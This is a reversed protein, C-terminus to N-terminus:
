FDIALKYFENKVVPWCKKLFMGNFGDPGPARDAPMEKIVDDMEKQQFPLTLEDLGDVKQILRQLDFQMTVGESHGMQERYSNWLMAAMLDHDTVENGQCDKLIAINNRRFRETAMAHIKKTNEEGQKIWRVTCRKQWYGCEAKMLDDLHLKVIKRFNFEARYLPREEELTDLLFIVKNCNEILGKIKSLSVQWKKLDFRLSKL